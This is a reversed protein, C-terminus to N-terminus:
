MMFLLLSLSVPCAYLLTRLSDRLSPAASWGPPLGLTVPAEEEMAVTVMMRGNADTVTRTVANHPMVTPMGSVNVMTTATGLLASYTSTALGSSVILDVPAHISTNFAYSPTAQTPTPLLINPLTTSVTASRASFMSPMDETTQNTGPNATENRLPYFGVRPPEKGSIGYSFISYVTRLFATGFQWDIGDSQPQHAKPWSLCMNPNDSTPGILYDEPLLTYNASGFAFTLPVATDCPVAWQVGKGSDVIRSGDILDFLESVDELPGYIGPSGVDILALAHGGNRSPYSPTTDAATDNVSFSSIPIAWHLYTPESAEAFFPPFSAVSNWSIDSVNRVVSADIAGIALSGSANWGLHFGFVPYELLGQQALRPFLPVSNTVNPFASLRPFGLGLLGSTSDSLALTTNSVLGILQNAVSINPLEVTERALFGAAETGDAYGSRFATKNGNVESFTPSQYALPFRPTDECQETECESSVLWLDASGTDLAVRYHADGVKITTFYSQRDSGFSVRALGATTNPNGDFDREYVTTIPLTPVDGRAVLQSLGTAVASSALKGLLFAALLM